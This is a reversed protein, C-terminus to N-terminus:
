ITPLKFSLFDYSNICFIFAFEDFKLLSHPKYGSFICMNIITGCGRGGERRVKLVGGAYSCPLMNSFVSRSINSGLVRIM